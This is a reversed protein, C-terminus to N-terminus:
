AVARCGQGRLSPVRREIMRGFLRAFRFVTALATILSVLAVEVWLPVGSPKTVLTMM